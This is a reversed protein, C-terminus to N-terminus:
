FPLDSIEEGNKKSLDDQQIVEFRCTDENWEKEVFEVYDGKFGYDVAGLMGDRNKRVFMKVFREETFKQELDDTHLMLVINADQEM